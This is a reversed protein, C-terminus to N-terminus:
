LELLKNISSQYESHKRYSQIFTEEDSSLEICNHQEKIYGFATLPSLINYICCLKLLTDANPTTVSNEWGYITKTSVMCGMNSLAQQIETVSFGSAKRYDRLIAGINKNKM